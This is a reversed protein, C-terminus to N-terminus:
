ISSWGVCNPRTRLYDALAAAHVILDVDETPRIAPLAPDTILLGAVAGGVFVFNDRLREGLSEAVLELLVVNPDNPNM